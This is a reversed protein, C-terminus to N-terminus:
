SARPLDRAQTKEAFATRGELYDTRDFCRTALTTIETHSVRFLPRM